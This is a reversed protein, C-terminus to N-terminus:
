RRHMPTKVAPIPVIRTFPDCGPCNAYDVYVDYVANGTSGNSDTIDVELRHNTGGPSLAMDLSPGNGGVPSGDAWWQYTYSGTGGSVGAQWHGSSSEVVVGPGTINASLFVTVGLTVTDATNDTRITVNSLSYSGATGLSSTYTAGTANAIPEGNLLWRYTYGTTDWQPKSRWTQPSGYVVGGVGVITQAQPDIDGPLIKWARANGFLLGIADVHLSDLMQSPNDPFNRFQGPYAGFHPEARFSNSNNPNQQFYVFNAGAFRSASYWSLLDVNVYSNPNGFADYGIKSTPVNIIAVFNV